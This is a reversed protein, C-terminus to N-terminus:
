KFKLKLLLGTIVSSISYSIAIDLVMSGKILETTIIIGSVALLILLAKSFKLNINYKALFYYLFGYLIYTPISFFLGFILSLPYVSLLDVIKYPNVENVYMIIQSVVPGLLLTFLWHKFLYNWNM